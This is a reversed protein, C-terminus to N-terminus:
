KSFHFCSLMTEVAQEIHILPTIRIKETLASSAEQQKPHPHIEGESVKV